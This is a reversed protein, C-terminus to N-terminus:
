WLVVGMIGGACLYVIPHFKTKKIAMYAILFFLISKMDLDAWVIPGKSSNFFAVRGVQYIALGLLGIVSAKLGDLTARITPNENFHNLFKSVIILLILGPLVVAISALLSGLLGFTNYGIFTALNIAIPGPTSQSIAILDAFDTASLWGNSISFDSLLPIMALGGGYTIAGIKLFELLFAFLSM